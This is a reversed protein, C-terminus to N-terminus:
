VACLVVVGETQPVILTDGVVDVTDGEADVICLRDGEAVLICLTHGVDETAREALEDGAAVLAFAVTLPDPVRVNPLRLGKGLVGSDVRVYQDNVTEGLADTRVPDATAVLKGKVRVAQPDEEKVPLGHIVTVEYLVFEPDALGVVPRM